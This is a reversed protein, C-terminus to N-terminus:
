PFKAYRITYAVFLPPYQAEQISMLRTIGKLNLETRKNKKM